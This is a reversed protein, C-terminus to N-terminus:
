YLVLNKIEPDPTQVGCQVLNRCQLLNTHKVDLVALGGLKKCVPKLAHGLWLQAFGLGMNEVPSNFM